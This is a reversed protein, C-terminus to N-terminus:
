PVLPRKPVRYAKKRAADEWNGRSLKCGSSKLVGALGQITPQDVTLTKDEKNLYRTLRYIVRKIDTFYPDTESIKEAAKLLLSAKKESPTEGILNYFRKIVKVSSSLTHKDRIGFLKEKMGPDVILRSKGQNIADHLVTAIQNLESKHQSDTFRKEANAKAMRKYFNLLRAKGQDGALLTLFSRIFRVDDSFKEEGGSVKIDKKLIRTPRVKKEKPLTKIIRTIESGVKELDSRVSEESQANIMEQWGAMVQEMSSRNVNSPNEVLESIETEVSAIIEEDQNSADMRIDTMTEIIQQLRQSITGKTIWWKARRGPEKKTSVQKREAEKKPKAASPQEKLWDLHVEILKRIDAEEAVEVLQVWNRFDASAEKIIEYAQRHLEPLQGAGGLKAIDTEYNEFTHTNM